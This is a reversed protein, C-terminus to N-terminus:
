QIESEVELNVKWLNAVSIACITQTKVQESIGFVPKRVVFSVSYAVAEVVKEPFKSTM